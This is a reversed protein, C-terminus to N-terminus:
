YESARNQCTAPMISTLLSCLETQEHDTSHVFVKYNVFYDPLVSSRSAIQSFFTKMVSRSLSYSVGLSIFDEVKVKRFTFSVCMVWFTIPFVIYSLALNIVPVWTQLLFRYHFFNKTLCLLTQLMATLIIDFCLEAQKSALRALNRRESLRQM